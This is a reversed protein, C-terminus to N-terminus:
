AAPLIAHIKYAQIWCMCSWTGMHWRLICIIYWGPLYRLCSYISWHYLIPGQANIVCWLLIYPLINGYGNNIGKRTHVCAKINFSIHKHQEKIHSWGNSTEVHTFWRVTRTQVPMEKYFLFPPLSLHIVATYSLSETMTLGLPAEQVINQCAFRIDPNYAGSNADLHSHTRTSIQPVPGPKHYLAYLFLQRSSHINILKVCLIDEKM